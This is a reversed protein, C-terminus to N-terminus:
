KKEALEKIWETTNLMSTIAGEEIRKHGPTVSVLMGFRARFEKYYEQFIDKAKSIDVSLLEPIKAKIIAEVTYAEGGDPMGM